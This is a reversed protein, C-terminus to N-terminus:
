RKCSGGTVNGAPDYVTATTYSQTSDADSRTELIVRNRDDYTYGTVGGDAEFRYSLNGKLDYVLNVEPKESLGRHRPLRGTVLRDLDDYVYEITYDGGPYAGSTGRGDTLSTPRDLKDYTFETRNGLPDTESLLKGRASYSRLTSNNRPDILRILNGAGDFVSKSVSQLATGQNDTYFVTTAIIQGLGNVRFDTRAPRGNRYSTKRIKTKKIKEPNKKLPFDGGPKLWDTGPQRVGGGRRM